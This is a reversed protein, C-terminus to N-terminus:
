YMLADGGRPDEVGTGATMAWRGNALRSFVPDGFSTTIRGVPQWNLFSIGSTDITRGDATSGAKVSNGGPAVDQYFFAMSAGAAPAPSTTGTAGPATTASSGAGGCAAALALVAAVSPFRPM